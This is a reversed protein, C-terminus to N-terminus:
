CGCYTKAKGYTYTKIPEGCKKCKDPALLNILTLIIATAIHSATM